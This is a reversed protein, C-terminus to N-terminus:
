IARIDNGDNLMVAVAKAARFIANKKETRAYLQLSVKQVGNILAQWVETVSSCVM